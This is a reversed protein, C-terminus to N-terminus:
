RAPAVAGRARPVLEAYLSELPPVLVRWDYRAAVLARGAAALARGRARDALLGVVADAFAAADDALLADRRDTLAIGEAGLRTSVVPM